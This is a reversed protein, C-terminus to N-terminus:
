AGLFKQSRTSVANADLKMMVPDLIDSSAGRNIHFGCHAVPLQANAEGPSPSQITRILTRGLSLLGSASCEVADHYGGCEDDQRGRWGEM